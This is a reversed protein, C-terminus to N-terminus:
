VDGQLYLISFSGALCSDSGSGAGEARSGSTEQRRTHKIQEPRRQYSGQPSPVVELRIQSWPRM